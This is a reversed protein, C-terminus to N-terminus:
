FNLPKVHPRRRQKNYDLAYCRVCLIHNKKKGRWNASSTAGPSTAGCETCVRAPEEIRQRKSKRGRASKETNGRREGPEHSIALKLMDLNAGRGLAPANFFMMADILDADSTILQGTWRIEKADCGLRDSLSRRLTDLCKAGYPIRIIGRTGEADDIEVCVPMCTATPGVHITRKTAAAEIVDKDSLIRLGESLSGVVYSGQAADDGFHKRVFNRLLELAESGKDVHFTGTTTGNTIYITYSTPFTAAWASNDASPVIDALNRGDM